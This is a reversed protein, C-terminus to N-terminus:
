IYLFRFDFSITFDGTAGTIEFENWGKALTILKRNTDRFISLSNKVSRVGDLTVTDSDLTTGTYTWEDGTTINKISLNTSAGEFIIKLDHQRPDITVDGDNWVSFKSTNFTYQIPPDNFNEEKVQVIETGSPNLTTGISEAFPSDSIFSVEFEGLTPVIKEPIFANATKVKWKKQLQYKSIIYFPTISDFLSFAENQIFEYEELNGSMIGFRGILRRQAYTTGLDVAGHRGELEETRYRPSLSEIRLSLPVIGSSHFDYRTGDLKEIIIM